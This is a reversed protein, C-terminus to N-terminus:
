SDTWRKGTLASMVWQWVRETTELLVSVKREDYM